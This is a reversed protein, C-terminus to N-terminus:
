DPLRGTMIKFSERAQAKLWVEGSIYKLGTDALRPDRYNAEIVIGKPFFEEVQQLQPIACPITYILVQAEKLAEGIEEIPMLSVSKGCRKCFEECKSTNRAAVVSRLGLSVAAATAARGAGGCGAIVVSGGAAPDYFTKLLEVVATYDTNYAFVEDGTKVLLNTAGIAATSNDCNDAAKFALEKFPATVNVADFEKKFVSYAEEFSDYDILEYTHPSDPYAARFLEPSKSHSIPHGILGFRM